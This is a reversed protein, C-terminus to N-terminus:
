KKIQNTKATSDSQRLNYYVDVNEPKIGTKDQLLVEAKHRQKSEFVNGLALEGAFLGAIIACGTAVISRNKAKALDRQSATLQERLEEAATKPTLTSPKLKTEQGYMRVGFKQRQPANFRQSVTIM